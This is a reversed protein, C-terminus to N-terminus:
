IFPSINDETKMSSTTWREGNLILNAPCRYTETDIDTETATEWGMTYILSNGSQLAKGHARAEPLPTGDSWRNKAPDYVKVKDTLGASEYSYGGLFYLRGNYAAITFDTTKKLQAPLEGLNEVKGTRTDISVLRSQGSYIRFRTMRKEIDEFYDDGDSDRPEMEEAMGYEVVAYLKGNLYVLDDSVIITCEDKPRKKLDFLASPEITGLRVVGQDLAKTDLKQITGNNYKEVSYIYRGDTAMPGYVLEDSTNEAESYEQKGSVLYYNSRGTSHGDADTIRINVLNNIWRNDKVVLEQNTQSVIEATQLEEADYKGFQVTLGDAPNLGMGRITISGGSRDALIKGMWPRLHESRKTFDFVGGSVTPLSGAKTMSVIQGVLLAPDLPEGSKEAEAALLAVSGTIFPTAMSTGNYFDYQGFVDAGSLDQRSLGFDDLHITADCSENAYLVIVIERKLPNQELEKGSEKATRVEGLVAQLEEDTLTQFSLHNWRDFSNPGVTRGAGLSYGMITEYDLSTGQPLDLVGLVGCQEKSGESKAMFSCFPAMTADADLEYPLAICIIDKAKMKRADIEVAGGNSNLFGDKVTSISIKTSSNGPLGPKGNFYLHDKLQTVSGWGSAESEYGNYEASISSQKSGYITPNYCDYSVTSLIDTGPAAVDVSEKGYNSFGALQGDETTAAVTINYPSMINAPYFPNIDNDNSSNGAACCTIVGKEGVINILEELIKSNWDSGWSNNIARIPEGLDLAQNIYYYAAAAHSLQASGKANLIRLAMIRIRQNVGSIGIGNNGQAGIIGACHSGHGNEDLPDGDGDIFDFGYEGALEPQHTNHWMNKVLDPHKYNVGTDVVAVIAESGTTGRDWVTTVNPTYENYDPTGAAGGCMYWQRSFYPDDVTCAHIKYNPEAYLVDKHKKLERILQKTSLSGSKVLCVSSYTQAQSGIVTTQKERFSYVEQVELDQIGSEQLRLAEKVKKRTLRKTSKMLVLAAHEEYAGEDEKEEMFDLLTGVGSKHLKSSQQQKEETLGEAESDEPEAEASEETGPEEQVSMEDMTEGSEADGQSSDAEVSSEAAEQSSDAGMRSGAGSEEPESAEAAISDGTSDESSYVDPREDSSEAAYASAPFCSLVMSLMLVIAVIRKRM